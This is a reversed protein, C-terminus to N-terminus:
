HQHYTTIIDEKKNDVLVSKNFVSELLKMMHKYHRLQREIEKNPIYYEYAKKKKSKHGYLLIIDIEESSIGRQSSRIEAHKSIKM